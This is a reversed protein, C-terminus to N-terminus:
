VALSTNVSFPTVAAGYMALLACVCICAAGSSRYRSRTRLRRAREGARGRAAWNADRLPARQHEGGNSRITSVVLGVVAQSCPWGLYGRESCFHMTDITHKRTIVRTLAHPKKANANAPTCNTVCKRIQDRSLSWLTYSYQTALRANIALLSSQGKQSKLLSFKTWPPEFKKAHM